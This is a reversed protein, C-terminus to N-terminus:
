CMRLKLVIDVKSQHYIRCELLTSEDSYIKGSIILKQQHISIKLKNLIEQKLDLVTNYYNMQFVYEKFNHTVIIVDFSDMLKTEEIKIDTQIQIEKKLINEFYQPIDKNFHKQYLEITMDLRKSKQYDPDYFRNPWHYVDYNLIKCMENYDKNYELHYHWVKDIESTPSLILGDTDNAIVKLVIFKYYANKLESQINYQTEFPLKRMFILGYLETANLKQGKVHPKHQPEDYLYTINDNDIAVTDIETDTADTDKKINMEVESNYFESM